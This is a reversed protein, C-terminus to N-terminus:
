KEILKWKEYDIPEDTAESYFHKANNDWEAVIFFCNKPFDPTDVLYWGDETPEEEHWGGQESIPQKDKWEAMAMASDICESNSYVDYLCGDDAIVRYSKMVKSAIEVAKEENIEM